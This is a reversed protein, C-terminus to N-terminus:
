KANRKREGRRELADKASDMFDPHHHAYLEVTTSHSQGLWGAIDWLDVGRQALWTGCTHRLTHPSVGELEAKKCARGFSGHRSDGIDLIRSGKDHVVYGLDSGRRRALKLMTLLPRPIPIRAKRKNTRVEGPTRFDIRGAELDVQPWRLSLIATKRAGTYLGLMVFLPLYLRTDSRGTRAVNLLRAAEPRTLWRDKGAPKEPLVVAPAQSLRKESVAFNLAARLTSLERRITAPARRRRNGYVGCAQKTIESVRKEGWFPLLADIAYAIRAPDKANPAHLSGYLDLVDAIMVQDPEGPKDAQEANRRERLFDALAEEAQRQDTTGTARSRERGAEYWIIYWADRKKLWKLRPGTNRRPM